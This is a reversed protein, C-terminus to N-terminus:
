DALMQEMQEIEATQSDVISEALAIAESSEGQEIEVEATEIAGQHHEIMMELWMDEFDAGRADRLRDLDEESMMGPMEEDMDMGGGDANAHDRATEPVPQDWDELLDTMQEIEPAQAARIQELLAGFEPSPQTMRTAMDVMSLAEAHHPIMETAFAVDADNFEASEPVSSSGDTTDDACGSLALVAAALLGLLRHHTHM